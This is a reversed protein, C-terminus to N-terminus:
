NLPACGVQLAREVAGVVGQSICFTYAALYHILKRFWAEVGPPDGFGGPCYQVQECSGMTFM